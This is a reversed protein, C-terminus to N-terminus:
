LEPGGIRLVLLSEEGSELFAAIAAVRSELLRGIASTDANGVALWIVKSPPGHLFALQRFDNDKSVIALGNDRAFEWIRLDPQGGLGVSEVHDAAPFFARLRPVLRPSLNEDFLLSV